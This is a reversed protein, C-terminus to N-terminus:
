GTKRALSPPLVIADIVEAEASNKMSISSNSRDCSHQRRPLQQYHEKESSLFGCVLYLTLCIHVLSLIPSMLYGKVLFIGFVLSLFHVWLPSVARAM